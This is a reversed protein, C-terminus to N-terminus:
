AATQSVHYPRKEARGQPILDNQVPSRIAYPVAGVPSGDSLPVENGLLIARTMAAHENASPVAAHIASKL